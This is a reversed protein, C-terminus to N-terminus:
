KMIVVTIGAGGRDAHEDAISAVNRNRSLQDRIMKRLVGEGKGHLIRLEHAALLVADDMFADLLPLVEDARKGRLDIEPRFVSRKAGIDIGSIRSYDSAPLESAPELQDIRVKSRLLGFQVFLEKGKVQLVTGAQDQGRLRVRDGERFSNTIAQKPKELPAQEAVTDKLATLRERIKKTEKKEAKNERIHRITKEIERNTDRLLAAASEKAKGIIEKKKGELETSMQEYRRTLEKLKAEKQELERRLREVMVKETETKRMLTELGVLGAGIM